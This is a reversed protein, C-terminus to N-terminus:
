YAKMHNRHEQYDIYHGSPAFRKSVLAFDADELHLNWLFNRFEGLSVEYVYHMHEEIVSIYTYMINITSTYMCIIYLIYLIFAYIYIYPRFAMSQKRASMGVYQAGISSMPGKLLREPSSDGPSADAPSKELWRPHRFSPTERAEGGFTLRIKILFWLFGVHM